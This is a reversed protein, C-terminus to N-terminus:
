AHVHLRDRYQVSIDGHYAMKGISPISLASIWQADYSMAMVSALKFCFSISAIRSVIALLPGTSEGVVICGGVVRLCADLVRLAPTTKSFGTFTLSDVGSGISVSLPGSVDSLSLSPTAKGADTGRYSEECITGNAAQM